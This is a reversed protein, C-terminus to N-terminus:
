NSKGPIAAQGLALRARRLLHRRLPHVVRCTSRAFGTSEAYRVGLDTSTSGTSKSSPQKWAARRTTPRVASTLRRRAWVRFDHGGSKVVSRREYDSVYKDGARDLGATIRIERGDATEVVVVQDGISYASVIRELGSLEGWDVASSGALSESGSGAATM